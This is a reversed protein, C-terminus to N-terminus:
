PSPKSSNFIVMLSFAKMLELDVSWYHDLWFTFDMKVIISKYFVLHGDQLLSDYDYFALSYSTVSCWAGIDLNSGIYWCRKTLSKSPKENQKRKLNWLCNDESFLLIFNNLYVLWALIINIMQPFFHTPKRRRKKKWNGKLRLWSSDCCMCVHCYCM